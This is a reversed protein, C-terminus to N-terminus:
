FRGYILYNVKVFPQFPTYNGRWTYGEAELSPDEITLSSFYYEAGASVSWRPTIQYGYALDASWLFDRLGDTKLWAYRSFEMIGQALQDDVWTTIDGQAGYLYQVGINTAILHRHSRVRAGLKGYVYHLKDPTLTNFSSRAGFGPQSVVSEREFSFGGNQFLYGGSAVLSVAPSLRYGLGAGAYLKWGAEHDPKVAFIVGSGAEGFVFFPKMKTKAPEINTEPLGANYTLPEIILVGLPSAVTQSRFSASVSVESSTQAVSPDVVKAPIINDDTATNTIETTSVSPLVTTRLSQKNTNENNVFTTKQQGSALSNVNADGYISSSQISIDDTAQTRIKEESILHEGSDESLQEASTIQNANSYVASQTEDHAMAPEDLHTNQEKHKETKPLLSNDDQSPLLFYIGAMVLLLAISATWWFPLFRRKPQRDLLDIMDKRHNEDVPFHQQELKRKLIDDFKDKM